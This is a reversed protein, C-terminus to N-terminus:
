GNRPDMRGRRCKGPGHRGPRCGAMLFKKEKLTGDLCAQFPASIAGCIVAQVGVKELCHAIAQASANALRIEKRATLQGEVVDVLVLTQAFDLTTAVLGQWAAIATRNM